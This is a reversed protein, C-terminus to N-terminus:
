KRRWERPSMGTHKRFVRSFYLPDTYGLRYAIEKVSLSPTKLLPYAFEVKMNEHLKQLSIGLDSKAIRCLSQVTLAFHEAMDGLRVPKQLHTELYRYLDEGTVREHIRIIDNRDAHLLKVLIDALLVESHTMSEPIGTRRGYQMKRIKGAYLEPDHVQFYQAGFKRLIKETLADAYTGSFRCHYELYPDDGDSYLVGPKDPTVILAHNGTVQIKGDSNEYWGKGTVYFSVRYDQEFTGPSIHRTNRNTCGAAKVIFPLHKTDININDMYNHHYEMRFGM